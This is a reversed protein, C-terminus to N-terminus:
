DELTHSINGKSDGKTKVSEEHQYSTVCKTKWSMCLQRRCMGCKRHSPSDRERERTFKHNNILIM